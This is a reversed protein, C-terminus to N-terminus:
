RGNYLYNINCNHNTYPSYSWGKGGSNCSTSGSTYGVSGYSSKSSNDSPSQYNFKRIIQNLYPDYNKSEKVYISMSM